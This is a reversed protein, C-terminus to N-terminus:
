FGFDTNYYRWILEGKTSYKLLKMFNKHVHTSEFMKVPIQAFLFFIFGINKALEKRKNGVWERSLKMVHNSNENPIIKMVPEIILDNERDNGGTNLLTCSIVM